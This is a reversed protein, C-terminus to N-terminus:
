FTVEDDGGSAIQITTGCIADIDDVTILEATDELGVAVIDYETTGIQIKSVEAM